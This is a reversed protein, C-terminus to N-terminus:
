RPEREDGSTPPRRGAVSGPRYRFLSRRYKPFAGLFQGVPEFWTPDELIAMAEPRRRRALAERHYSVYLPRGDRDAEEMLAVLAQPTGVDRTLPDYYDNPGYVAGTLTPRPALPDGHRPSGVTALVSFTPQMEVSRLHSRMPHTVTAFAILVLFVTAGIGFDRARRHNLRSFIATTGLALLAIVGPLGHIVYWTYLHDGRWTALMITLPAPLLLVWAAARTPASTRVLRFLGLFGAATLFLLLGPVLVPHAATVTDLTVYGDDPRVDHLGILMLTRVERLWGRTIEGRWDEAYDLFQMMNALNLQLWLLGSLANALLFRGLPPIGPRTKRPRNRVLQFLLWGNLVVPVFIAGPYTWLLLMQVAGYVAWRDWSGRELVRFAAVLSVPLLALLFAYGRAESAYRLFWPHLALLWAACFAASTFGLRFLLWALTGVAAMGGLLAPLRVSTESARLDDPRTVGRWVDWFVRAAISYPVHNNPKRYYFFTEPWSAQDFILEGADDYEYVGAISHAVMYKEDTWLADDLRPAAIVALSAMAALVGAALWRPPGPRPAGFAPLTAPPTPRALWPFKWALLALACANVATIWWGFAAAYDHPRLKGGSRAREFFSRGFPDDGIALYLLAVGLMVVLGARLARARGPLADPPEDREASRKPTSLVSVRM